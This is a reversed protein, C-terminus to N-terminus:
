QNMGYEKKLLEILRLNYPLKDQLNSIYNQTWGRELYIKNFFIKIQHPDNTLLPLEKNSYIGNKFYSSDERIKFVLIESLAETGDNIAKQYPIEASYISRVVVDYNAISDSVHSRKIYQMGGANKLQMMTADDSQFGSYFSVTNSYKYLLRKNAANLLDTFGLSLLSDLRTIKKQNDTIAENMYHTDQQLNGILSSVYEKEKDSNTINERLSEALFGLTVAIFIMFGELLYDKFRKKETDPHHHVEM